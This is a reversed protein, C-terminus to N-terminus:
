STIYRGVRIVFYDLQLFFLFRLSRLLKPNQSTIYRGFRIVFYDLQLFFLFRL